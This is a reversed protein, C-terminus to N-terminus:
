VDELRISITRSGDGLDVSQVVVAKGSPDGDFVMSFTGDSIVTLSERETFGRSVYQDRYFEMAEDASLRTYFVLTGGAETVDFADETMPFDTSISSEPAVDEVPSATPQPMDPSSNSDTPSIGLPQDRGGILAQCALSALVLSTIALVISNRQM